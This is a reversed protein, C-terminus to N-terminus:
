SELLFKTFVSGSTIICTLASRFNHLVRLSQCNLFLTGPNQSSASIDDTFNFFFFFLFYIIFLLLLLIINGKKIDFHLGNRLARAEDNRFSRESLSFLMYKPCCTHEESFPSPVLRSYRAAAPQLVPFVLRGAQFTLLEQTCNLGERRPILSLSISKYKLSCVQQDSNATTLFM